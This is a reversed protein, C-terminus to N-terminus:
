WPKLQTHGPATASYSSGAAVGIRMPQHRNSPIALCARTARYILHPSTSSTLRPLKRLGRGLAGCPAYKVGCGGLVRCCRCAGCDPAPGASAHSGRDVAWPAFYRPGARFSKAARRVLDARLKSTRHENASAVSIVPDLWVEAAGKRASGLGAKADTGALARISMSMSM